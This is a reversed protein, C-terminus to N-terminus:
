ALCQSYFSLGWTELVLSGVTTCLACPVYLYDYCLTSLSRSTRSPIRTCLTPVSDRLGPNPLSLLPLLIQTLGLFVFLIGASLSSLSFSVSCHSAVMWPCSSRLASHAKSVRPHPAKPSDCSILCSLYTSALSFPLRLLSHWGWSESKLWM